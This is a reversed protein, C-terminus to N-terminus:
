TSSNESNIPPPMPLVGRQISLDSHCVGSAALKVLVEGQRPEQLEVKEVKFPENWAYLVAARM